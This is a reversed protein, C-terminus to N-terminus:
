QRRVYFLTNAAPLITLESIFLRLVTCCLRPLITYSYGFFDVPSIYTFPM